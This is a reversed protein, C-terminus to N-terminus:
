KQKDLTFTSTQGHAVDQDEVTLTRGDAATALHIVDTVKGQRHDTEEVANASLRKLTVTTHGPDGTIPYEKGDFKADYSQGNASMSFSDATMKYTVINGADNAETTKDPAWSGSVAHSGSPGAAVRKATGAFTAPKAGTYDTYKGNLTSGDASVSMTYVGTVKGALKATREVTKADVVKVTLTDYYDHGTVKQESGDAKIKIAPDCTSCTYMGDAVAFVDPKGTVKVSDVRGKWTGDFPSSAAFAAAPLLLLVTLPIRM